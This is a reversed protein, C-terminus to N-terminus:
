RKRAEAVHSCLREVGDLVRSTHRHLLSPDVAFLNKERVARLRSWREWAGISPAEMGPSAAVIIAEPDALLVAERSPQAVRMRQHEFANVAGCSRMADAIVHDANVTLLPSGWIQYFVSVPRELSTARRLRSLRQRFEAARASAVQSTGMLTGLRELSAAIDDLRHPEHLFIAYGLAQLRDLQRRPSGSAWAVVLDPRLMVIRELDLARADGIRPLARAAAPFDSHAAVGVLREGAGIEFMLETLHPALAVVRQAPGALRLTRGTDDLATVAAIAAAAGLQCGGSLAMMVAM